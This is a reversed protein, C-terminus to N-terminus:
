KALIRIKTTQPLSLSAYLYANRAYLPDFPADMSMNRVVLGTTPTAPNNLPETQYGVEAKQVPEATEKERTRSPRRPRAAAPTVTAYTCWAAAGGVGDRRCGPPRLEVGGGALKPSDDAGLSRRSLGRRRLQRHGWVNVCPLLARPGCQLPHAHRPSVLAHGRIARPTPM